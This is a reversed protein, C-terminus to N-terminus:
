QMCIAWVNRGKNTFKTSQAPPHLDHHHHGQNSWWSRTSTTWIRKIGINGVSEKYKPHRMLQRYNLLKGTEKDMVALAQQVENEMRIFQRHAANATGMTKSQTQSALPANM